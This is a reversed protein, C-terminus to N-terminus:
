AALDGADQADPGLGQHRRRDGHGQVEQDEAAQDARPDPGHVADAVHIEDDRAQHHHRHDLVGVAVDAGAEEAGLEAAVDFFQQDARHRVPHDQTAVDGAAHQAPQHDPHDHQPNGHQEGGH